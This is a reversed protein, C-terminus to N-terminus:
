KKCAKESRCFIHGDKMIFSVKKLALIDKEPNGNFAVIDGKAGVKLVGLDERRLLKAATATATQLTESPSLGGETYSFLSSLSNVGRDNNQFVMYMDSGFAIPVHAKHAAMLRGGFNKLYKECSKYEPDTNHGQIKHCTAQDIGTPVLFSQQRIMKKLLAEHVEFGHELSRAGAFAANQSTTMTSAHVAVPLNVKQAAEIIRKLLDLPMEGKEPDNDAYLKLTDVNKEKYSQLLREVEKSEINLSISTYEKVAELNKVSNPLQGQNVAWGPGSIFIRPLPKNPNNTQEQKLESDLFVGSNGLDRISTFGSYLLSKANQRAIKMRSESKLLAHTLAVQSFDNGYNTDNIFVHTHTDILGPTVAAQKLNIQQCNNPLRSSDASISTITDGEILIQTDTNHWKSGDFIHKTNLITCPAKFDAKSVSTILSVLAIPLYVGCKHM